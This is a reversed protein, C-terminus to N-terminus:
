KGVCFKSFIDDIIKENDSNGTIDGLNLWVNKIDISVLDLNFNEKTSTIAKDLNKISEEIAQIHRTNTLIASNNNINKSTIYELLLEKLKDINYGTKTSIEITKEFPIKSIDANKELDSKNVVLITNKDYISNYIELDNNDLPESGDVVFLIIDASSLMKKSKDIGISEVIDNSERIGASDISCSKFFRVYESCNKLLM